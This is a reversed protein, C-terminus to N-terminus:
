TTGYAYTEGWVGCSEQNGWEIMRKTSLLVNYCGSVPHDNRVPCITIEILLNSFKNGGAKGKEAVEDLLWDQAYEANVNLIEGIKGNAIM